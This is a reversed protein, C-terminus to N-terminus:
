TFVGSFGLWFELLRISRSRYFSRMSTSRNAVIARIGAARAALAGIICGYLQFCVVASPRLPALRRVLTIFLRALGTMGRPREQACFFPNPQADFAATKRYFFVHHVDYGHADLGLGLIRSIEQAGAGEAQTQVLVIRAKPQPSTAHRHDPGRDRAAEAPEA